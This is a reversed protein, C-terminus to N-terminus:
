LRVHLLVEGVAFGHQDFGSMGLEGAVEIQIVPAALDTSNEQLAVIHRTGDEVGPEDGEM